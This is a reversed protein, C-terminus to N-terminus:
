PGLELADVARARWSRDRGASLVRNLLDYRGAIDDFMGAIEQPARDLPLRDTM